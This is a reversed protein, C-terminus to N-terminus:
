EQKSHLDQGTPFQPLFSRIAAPKLDAESGWAWVILCYCEHDNLPENRCPSAAVVSSFRVMRNSNITHPWSSVDPGGQRAGERFITYLRPGRAALHSGASFAPYWRTLPGLRAQIRGLLVRIQHVARRASRQPIPAAFDQALPSAASTTAPPPSSPATPTAMGSGGGRNRRIGVTIRDGSSGDKLVDELVAVGLFDPYVLDSRAEPANYPTLRGAHRVIGLRFRHIRVLGRPSCGCQVGIECIRAPVNV